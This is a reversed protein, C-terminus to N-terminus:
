NQPQLQVWNCQILNTGASTGCTASLVFGQNVTHDVNTPVAGGMSLDNTSTTATGPVNIVGNGTLTAGSAAIGLSRVVVLFEMYWPSSAPVIGPTTLTQSAGLSINSAPTASVGIRPTFLWTVSAASQMIGGARILYAKGARMDFAPISTWLSPVWINAEATFTNLSPFNTPPLDLPQDAFGQRAV